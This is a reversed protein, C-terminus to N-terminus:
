RSEQSQVIGIFETLSVTKYRYLIECGLAVSDWTLAPGGVPGNNEFSFKHILTVADTAVLLGHGDGDTLDHEIPQEINSVIQPLIVTGGGYSTFPQFSDDITIWDLTTGLQSLGDFNGSNSVSSLYGEVALLWPNTGTIGTAWSWRVKLIEIITATNQGTQNIRNIPLNFRRAINNNATGGNSPVVSGPAASTQMKYWQPNVDNTGGTLRDAKARKM